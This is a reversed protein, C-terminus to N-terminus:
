INQTFNDAKNLLMEPLRCVQEINQRHIHTKNLHKVSSDKLGVFLFAAFLLLVLLATSGLSPVRPGLVASRKHQGRGGALRM